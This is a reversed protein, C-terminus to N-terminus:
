DKIKFEKINKNINNIIEATIDYNSKAIFVNKKEILIEISKKNMVDEILPNVLQLFRLVEDNRKKKLSQIITKKLDQYDKVQNQFTRVKQNYEDKALINKTNLIKNETEKLMKEKKKLENLEKEEKIKLQEFLNKSPISQSLILDLDVYAIKNQAFVIQSFFIFFLILIFFKKLKEM